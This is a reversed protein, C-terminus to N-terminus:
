DSKISSIIEKEGMRMECYFCKAELPEKRIQFKAPIREANTICKPNICKMIGEVSEPYGLESKNKIEADRIINITAGKGVLAITNLENKSLERGEIFMIDKKGMKRSEVNMGVTVTFDRLDLVELIKYASGTNLHDIATGNKIPTIRIDKAM